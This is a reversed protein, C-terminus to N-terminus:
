INYPNQIEYNLVTGLIFFSTKNSTSFSAISPHHVFSFEYNIENM